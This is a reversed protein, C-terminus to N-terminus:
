CLLIIIKSGIKVMKLNLTTKLPLQLPLAFQSSGLISVGYAYKAHGFRHFARYCGSEENSQIAVMGVVVDNNNDSENNSNYTAVLFFHPPKTWFTLEVDNLDTDLHDRLFTL